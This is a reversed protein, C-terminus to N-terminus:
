LGSVYETLLVLAGVSGRSVTSLGVEVNGVLQVELLEAVLTDHIDVFQLSSASDNNRDTTLQRLINSELKLLHTIVTRFAHSVYV